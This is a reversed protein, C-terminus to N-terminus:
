VSIVIKGRAHGDGLRRLADAAHEFRYTEEVVPRIAGSELLERLADLDARNFKSVFFVVNRSSALSALKLRGMYALPGLLRDGTAGAVILKGNSDLLRRCRSWSMRGGVHVIVDFRSGSRSVDERTYDVVHDAGLGRAQDVNRASCVATVEAGLSKAIQVAFTGVGGSAGNVLVRDGPGVAAHDRLGQLATLGAIPVAAAEAFTLNAPMPAVRGTRALVYQACSGAAAGFVNDGPELDAVDKGVAEVTGAFDHGVLPSKPRRIGGMVPRLALPPNVEYWDLKNLAAARVRVIVADIALEPRDVDDVHVVDAPGYREHVIARMRTPQQIAAAAM